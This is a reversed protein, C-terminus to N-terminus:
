KLKWTLKKTRLAWYKTNQDCGPPYVTNISIGLKPTMMRGHKFFYMQKLKLVEEFLQENFHDFNM